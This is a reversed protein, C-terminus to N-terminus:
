DITTSSAGSEITIDFRDTATAYEASTFEEGSQFLGRFARGDVSLSSAGGRSSVRLATGPLRHIALRLAGGSIAVPVTGMPKPLTLNVTSAGSSLGVSSLRLGSLDLTGQSAGSTVEIVWPLQDDLTLEITRAGDERGLQFGQRGPLAVRLTGTGADLTVEPKEDSPASITARYLAGATPGARVTFRTAGASLDLRPATVAGAPASFSTTVAPASIGVVLGPLATLGAAAGMLLLALIAALFAGGLRAPVRDRLMIALGLAILLLPWLSLLRAVREWDLLGLNVLLATVGVVILAVPWFLHRRVQPPAPPPPPPSSPLHIDAM